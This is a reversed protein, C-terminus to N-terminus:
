GYDRVNQNQKVGSNLNVILIYTAYTQMGFSYLCIGFAMHWVYAMCVTHKNM